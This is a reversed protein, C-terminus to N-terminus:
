GANTGTWRMCSEGNGGVCVVKTDRGKLQFAVTGFIAKLVKNGEVWLIWVGDLSFILDKTL